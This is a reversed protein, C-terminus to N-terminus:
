RVSPAAYCRETVHFSVKSHAPPAIINVSVFGVRRILDPSYNTQQFPLSRALDYRNSIPAAVRLRTRAVTRNCDVWNVPAHSSHPRCGGIPLAGWFPWQGFGRGHRFAYTIPGASLM